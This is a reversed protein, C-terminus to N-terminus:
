ATCWLLARGVLAACGTELQAAHSIDSTAAADRPTRRAAREKAACAARVIKLHRPRSCVSHTHRGGVELNEFPMLRGNPSETSPMPSFAVTIPWKGNVNAM